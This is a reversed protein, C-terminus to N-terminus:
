CFLSPLLLSYSFTFWSFTILQFWTFFIYWSLPLSQSHWISSIPSTLHSITMSFISLLQKPSPYIRTPTHKLYFPLPPNKPCTYFSGPLKAALPLLSNSSYNVTFVPGLSSKLIYIKSSTLLLMLFYYFCQSPFSGNFFSFHAVSFPSLHNIAPTPSLLHSRTCFCLSNVKSWIISLEDM